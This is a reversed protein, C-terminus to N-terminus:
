TSALSGVDDDAMALLDAVDTPRPGGAAVTETTSPMLSMGHFAGLTQKPPLKWIRLM